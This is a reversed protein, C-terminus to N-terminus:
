VVGPPIVVQHLTSGAAGVLATLTLPEPDPGHDGAPRVPVYEDVMQENQWRAIPTFFTTFAKGTPEIVSGTPLILPQTFTGSLRGMAVTWDGQGFQIDYANYHVM